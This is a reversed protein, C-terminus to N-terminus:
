SLMVLAALCTASSVSAFTAAAVLAVTFAAPAVAGLAVVLFAAQDIRSEADRLGREGRRGLAPSGTRKVLKAKLPVRGPASSRRNLFGIRLKYARHHPFLRHMESEIWTQARTNIEEPTLGVTDIAPGSASSSKM